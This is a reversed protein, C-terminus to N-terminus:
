AELYDGLALFDIKVILQCRSRALVNVSYGEETVGPLRSLATIETPRILRVSEAVRTFLQVSFHLQM